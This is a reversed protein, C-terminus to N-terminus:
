DPKAAGDSYFGDTCLYQKHTVVCPDELVCFGGVFAGATNCVHAGRLEYGAHCAFACEDGTTGACIQRPAHADVRTVM